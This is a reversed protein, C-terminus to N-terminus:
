RQHLCTNEPHEGDRHSQRDTGTQRSAETPETIIGCRDLPYHRGGEVCRVQAETGIGDDRPEVAADSHHIGWQCGANEPGDYASRHESDHQDTHSTNM